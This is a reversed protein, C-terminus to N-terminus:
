CLSEMDTLLSEVDPGREDALSEEDSFLCGGGRLFPQSLHMPVSLLSQHVRPPSFVKKM